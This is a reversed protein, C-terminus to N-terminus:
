SEGVLTCIATYNKNQGVYNDCHLQLVKQGISYNELYHHLFSVTANAGKGCAEAEDTLYNM